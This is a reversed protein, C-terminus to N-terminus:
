VMEQTKRTCQRGETKDSHSNGQGVLWLTTDCWLRVVIRRRVRVVVTMRVIVIGRGLVTGGRTVVTMVRTIRVAVRDVVSRVYLCRRRALKYGRFFFCRTVLRALAFTHTVVIMRMLIAVPWVRIIRREPESPVTMIIVLAIVVAVRVTITMTVVVIVHTVTVM